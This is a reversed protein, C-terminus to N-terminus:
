PVRAMQSVIKNGLKSQRAARAESLRTIEERARVEARDCDSPGTLAIGALPPEAMREAIAPFCTRAQGCDPEALAQKAEGRDNRATEIEKGLSGIKQTM